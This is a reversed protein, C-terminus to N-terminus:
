ELHVVVYLNGCTGNTKKMGCNTIPKEFGEKLYLQVPIINGSPLTYNFETQNGEYQKDFTLVHILDADSKLYFYEPYKRKLNLILPCRKGTKTTGYNEFLLYHNDNYDGYVQLPISFQNIQSTFQQNTCYYQFPIQIEKIEVVETIITQLNMMENLFMVNSQNEEIQKNNKEFIRRCRNKLENDDNITNSIKRQELTSKMFIEKIEVVKSNFSSYLNSFTEYSKNLQDIQSKNNQISKKSLELHSNSENIFTNISKQTEDFGKLVTGFQQITLLTGQIESSIIECTNENKNSLDKMEKNQQTQENIQQQLENMKQRTEQNTEIVSHITTSYNEITEKVSNFQHLDNELLDLSSQLKMNEENLNNIQEQTQNVDNNWSDKMTNQNNVIEIQKENLDNISKNLESLTSQTLDIKNSNNDQINKLESIENQQKNLEDQINRIFNPFENELKNIKQNFEDYIKKVECNIQNQKEIENMTIQKDFEKHEISFREVIKETSCDGFKDDRKEEFVKEMKVFFEYLNDFDNEVSAYYKEDPSNNMFIENLKMKMKECEEKQNNDNDIFLFLNLCDNLKELYKSFLNYKNLQTQKRDSFFNFISKLPEIDKIEKMEKLFDFLWLLCIKVANHRTQVSATITCNGDAEIKDYYIRQKNVDFDNEFINEIQQIICYFQQRQTSEFPTQKSLDNLRKINKILTQM